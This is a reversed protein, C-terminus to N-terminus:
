REGTVEHKARLHLGSTTALPTCRATLSKGYQGSKM